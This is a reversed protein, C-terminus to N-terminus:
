YVTLCNRASRLPFIPSPMWGCIAVPLVMCSTPLGRLGVSVRTKGGAASVSLSSSGPGIIAASGSEATVSVGSTNHGIYGQRKGDPNLFELFGTNTTDRSGQLRVCGQGPTGSRGCAGVQVPEEYGQTGDPGPGILRGARTHPRINRYPTSSLVLSAGASVGFANTGATVAAYRQVDSGIIKLSGSTGYGVNAIKDVHGARLGYITLDAQDSALDFMPRAAYCHTSTDGYLLVNTMTGSFWTGNGNPLGVAQCVQNFSINTLQLENAAFTVKGFGSIVTANEAQIALRSQYFEVNDAQMNAVYLLLWDVKNDELYDTIGTQNANWWNVYRLNLVHMTNDIRSFRTGINFCGNFYINEMFSAIGSVGNSAGDWDICHTAATISVNRIGAYNASGTIKITYPYQMPKWNVQPAPQNYVFHVDEVLSGVENITICPPLLDECKIWSGASAWQEPDTVANGSWHHLGVGGLSVNRSLTIGTALHCSNGTAPM